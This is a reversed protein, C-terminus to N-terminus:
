SAIPLKIFYSNVIEKINQQVWTQFDRKKIRDLLPAPVFPTILEYIEGLKLGNLEELVQNMPQQGSEIMPRADLSRVIKSPDFWKPPASSDKTKDGSEFDATQGVITRLKNILVSLSVDGIQAVQRLTAVRAVTKRLIPNHLKKFAPAMEILVEELQPYHDLLASIKTEPTIQIQESM